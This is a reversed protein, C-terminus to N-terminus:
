KNSATPMVVVIHSHSPQILRFTSVTVTNIILRGFIRGLEGLMKYRMAKWWNTSFEMPPFPKCAPLVLVIIKSAPICKSIYAVAHQTPGDINAEKVQM